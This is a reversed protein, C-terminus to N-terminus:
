IRQSKARYDKVIFWVFAAVSVGLGVVTFWFGISQMQTPFLVEQSPPFLAVLCKGLVVSLVGVGTVLLSRKRLKAYAVFSFIALGPFVIWDNWIYLYKAINGM